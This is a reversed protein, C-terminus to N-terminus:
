QDVEISLDYRFPPVGALAFAERQKAPNDGAALLLGRLGRRCGRCTPTHELAVLWLAV